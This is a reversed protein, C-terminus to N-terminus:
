AGGIREEAADDLAEMSRVATGAAHHGKQNRIYAAVRDVDRASVSFAAYHAQWRFSPMSGGLRHNMAYSSTGKIRRLIDAVCHTPHLRLLVHVHDASGDLAIVACGLRRAAASMTRHLHREVAPQILPRRDWTSWVAHVFLATHSGPM